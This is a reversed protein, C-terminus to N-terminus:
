QACKNLTVFHAKVSLLNLTIRGEKREFQKLIVGVFISKSKLYKRQATIQVGSSNPSGADASCHGQHNGQAKITFKFFFEASAIAAKM